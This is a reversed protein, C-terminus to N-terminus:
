GSSENRSSGSAIFAIKLPMKQERQVICIHRSAIHGAINLDAGEGPSESFREEFERVSIAVM